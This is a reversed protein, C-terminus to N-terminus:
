RRLRDPKSEFDGPLSQQPRVAQPALRKVVPPSAQRESDFDSNSDSDAPLLPGFTILPEFKEDQELRPQIPVGESSQEFAGSIAIILAATLAAFITLAVAVRRKRLRRRGRQSKARQRQIEFM